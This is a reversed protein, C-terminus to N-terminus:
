EHLPGKWDALQHEELHARGLANAEGYGRLRTTTGGQRWEIPMTWDCGRHNCTMGYTIHEGEALPATLDGFGTNVQEDTLHRGPWHSEAM